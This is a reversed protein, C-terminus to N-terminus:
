PQSAMFNLRDTACNMRKTLAVGLYIMTALFTLNRLVLISCAIPSFVTPGAPTSPVLGVPDLETYFFHYPFIFTTAAAVLIWLGALIWIVSWRDPLVELCLLGAIPIAWLFYQPSLVPSLIVATAIVYCISCYADRPLYPRIRLIARFIWAFLFAALIITSTIKLAPLLPGQLEISRHALSLSIPGAFWSTLMALSSYLSEIQIGRQWHHQFPYLVGVGSVLFQLIFPLVGGATIGAADVAFNRVRHLHNWDAIFIFPIGLLPILKFSISLGFFTSAVFKWISSTWAEDFSRIFCYAWSLFLALLAIDLRDYLLNGLIATSVVYVFLLWGVLYPRRRVAIKYLLLFSTLDCLFMLTRFSRRYSAKIIDASATESASDIRRPDIWRVGLITWCALPPYEIKFDAQYPVRHQETSLCAYRWYPDDIDSFKPQFYFLLYARSILFIAISVVTLQRRNRSLDRILQSVPQNLLSSLNATITQWFRNITM